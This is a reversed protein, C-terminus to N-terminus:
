VNSTGTAARLSHGARARFNLLRAPGGAPIMKDGWHLSGKVIFFTEADDYVHRAIVSHPNLPIKMLQMTCTDGAKHLYVKGELETPDIHDRMWGIPMDNMKHWRLQYPHHVRMSM